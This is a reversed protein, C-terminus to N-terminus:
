KIHDLTAWAAVKEKEHAAVKMCVDCMQLTDETITERQPPRSAVKSYSVPPGQCDLRMTIPQPIEASTSTDMHRLCEEPGTAKSSPISQGKGIGAKALKKTIVKGQGAGAGVLAMNPSTLLHQQIVRCVDGGAVNFSSTSVRPTLRPLASLTTEVASLSVTITPIMGGVVVQSSQSPPELVM